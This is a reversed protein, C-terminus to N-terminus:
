QNEQETFKLGGYETLGTKFRGSGEGGMGRV